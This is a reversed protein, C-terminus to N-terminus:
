LENVRRGNVKAEAKKEPKFTSFEEHKSQRGGSRKRRAARFNTRTLTELSKLSEMEEIEKCRSQFEVSEQLDSKHEKGMDAVISEIARERYLKLAEEGLASMKESKEIEEDKEEVKTKLDAIENQLEQVEEETLRDELQEKLSNHEETLQENEKELRDITSELVEKQKPDMLSDGKRKKNQNIPKVNEPISFTTKPIEISLQNSLNSINLNHVEAYLLLEDFTMEQQQLSEQLRKVVKAEPDAGAGVVSVELLKVAGQVTGTVRTGEDTKQGLVHGNRDRRRYFWFDTELELDEGCIDCTMRDVIAGISFDTVIGQNMRRIVESSGTDELDDLVFLRTRVRENTLRASETRGSPMERTNHQFYVGTGNNAQNRISRLSGLSFRFFYSNLATTSIDGLYYYRQGDETEETGDQCEIKLSPIYIKNTQSM